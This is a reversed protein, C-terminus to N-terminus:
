CCVSYNGIASMHLEGHLKSKSVYLLRNPTVTRSTPRIDRMDIRNKTSDDILKQKVQEPTLSMDASLLIAAAGAVISTAMSTGSMVCVRDCMQNCKSVALVNCGCRGASEIDQGPAFIDVCRGWNTGSFTTM